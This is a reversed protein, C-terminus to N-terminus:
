CFIGRGGKKCIILYMKKKNNENNHKVVYPCFIGISLVFFPKLNGAFIISPSVIAVM